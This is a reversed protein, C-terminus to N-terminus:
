SFFLAIHFSRTEGKVKGKVEIAQEEMIYARKMPGDVIGPLSIYTVLGQRMSSECCTDTEM